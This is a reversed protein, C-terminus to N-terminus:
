SKHFQVESQHCRHPQDVLPCLHNFAADTHELQMSRPADLAIVADGIKACHKCTCGDAGKELVEKLHEAIGIFGRNASNKPLTSAAAACKEVETRYRSLLVDDIRCRQRCTATDGFADEFTRLDESLSTISVSLPVAARGCHTTDKSADKFKGRIKADVRKIYRGLALRATHLDDPDEHGLEHADLLKGVLTLVAKLDAKSYKQSWLQCADGVTQITPLELYFYFGILSCVFSRRFEMLVYDSVYCRRSDLQAQLHRKYAETGHILPRVVSTDLFHKTDAAGPM